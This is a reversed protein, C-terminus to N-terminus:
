WFILEIAGGGVHKCSFGREELARTVELGANIFAKHEEPSALMETKSVTMPTEDMM